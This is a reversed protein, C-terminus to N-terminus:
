VGREGNEKEEGHHQSSQTNAQAKFQKSSIGEAM